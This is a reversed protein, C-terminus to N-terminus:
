SDLQNILGIMTQYTSAYVRGDENRETVLNVPSSDPLHRKSRM